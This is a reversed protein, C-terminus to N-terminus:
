RRPPRANQHPAPENSTFPWADMDAPYQAEIKRNRRRIVFLWPLWLCGGTVAGIILGVERVDRWHLLGEPLLFPWAYYGAVAFAICLGILLLLPRAWAGVFDDIPWTYKEDSELFAICRDFVATAKRTLASKGTLRHRHLDDYFYWLRTSIARIARDDSRAPFNAVFRDNDIRGDRFDRVLAAAKDRAPRDIM